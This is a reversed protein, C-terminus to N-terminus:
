KQRRLTLVSYYGLLTVTHHLSV